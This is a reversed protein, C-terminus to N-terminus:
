FKFLRVYSRGHSRNFFLLVERERTTEISPQLKKLVMMVTFFLVLFVFTWDITM